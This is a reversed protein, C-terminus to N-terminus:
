IQFWQKLVCLSSYATIGLPLVLELLARPQAKTATLPTLFFLEQQMFPM